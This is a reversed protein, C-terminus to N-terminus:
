FRTLKPLDKLEIRTLKKNNSLDISQVEEYGEITLKGELDQNRGFIDNTKAKKSYEKNL